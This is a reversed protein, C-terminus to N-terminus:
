DSKKVCSQIGKGLRRKEKYNVKVIGIIGSTVGVAGVGFILAIAILRQLPMPPTPPLPQYIISPQQQHYATRKPILPAPPAVAPPPSATTAAPVSPATQDVRKFAEQIEEASLGKKQLFAVKKVTEASQVNPSSLFSVASKILQENLPKSADQQPKQDTSPQQQQTNNNTEDAM